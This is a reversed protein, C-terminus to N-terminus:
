LWIPESREKFLTIDWTFSGIWEVHMSGAPIKRFFNVGKQRKNFASIKAGSSSVKFVKQYRSDILLYEGESLTENVFYPYGGIKVQPAIAPGYIRMQFDADTFHDNVLFGTGPEAGGYTYPYTYPYTKTDSLEESESSQLFVQFYEKIWLPHPVYIKMNKRIKRYQDSEVSHESGIVYCEVYQDDVYLRGPTKERVDKETIELFQNLAEARESRSGCFDARMDYKKSKRSFDNLIAGIVSKTEDVDWENDYLGASKIRTRIRESSLNIETGNSSVYKVM